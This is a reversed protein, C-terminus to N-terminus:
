PPINADNTLVEINVVKLSGTAPDEYYHMRVRDSTKVETFQIKKYNKYVVAKDALKFIVTDSPMEVSGSFWKLEIKSAVWDISSVKGRAIKLPHGEFEEAPLLTRFSFCLPLILTLSLAIKKIM